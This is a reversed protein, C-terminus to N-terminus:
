KEVENKLKKLGEAMQAGLNDNHFQILFRTMPSSKSSGDVKLYVYSGYEARVVKVLSHEANIKEESKLSFVAEGENKLTTKVQTIGNQAEWANNWKEWSKVNNVYPMIEAPRANIYVRRQVTWNPTLSLSFLLLGATVTAVATISAILKNM